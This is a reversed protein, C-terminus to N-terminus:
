MDKYKMKGTAKGVYPASGDGSIFSDDGIASYIKHFVEIMGPTNSLGNEDLVKAIEPTLFQKAARRAKEINADYDEAWKSKLGEIAKEQDRARKQVQAEYMQVSSSVERDFLKQAQAKTLGSLHANEQFKAQLDQFAKENRVRDPLKLEYGDPAEPTGLRNWFQRLDEETADKGPLAISSDLKGQLDVYAKGLEGIKAFSTLSENDQLEKPLQSTWAHRQPVQPADVGNTRADQQQPLAVDQGGVETQAQAVDGTLLNDSPESVMQDSM